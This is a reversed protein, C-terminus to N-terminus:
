KAPKAVVKVYCLQAENIRLRTPKLLVDTGPQLSGSVEAEFWGRNLRDTVHLFFHNATAGDSVPLWVRDACFSSEYTGGTNVADDTPRIGERAIQAYGVSAICVVVAFAMLMRNLM